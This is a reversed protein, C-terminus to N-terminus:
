SSAKIDGCSVYTGLDDASKHVNIAYKGALLTDLSVSVTSTSSGDVTNSLAYEPAAKINGCTGIHIHTPQATSPAGKLSIVIKVGDSQQTLTATGNEGSNNLEKMPITVTTVAAGAPPLNAFALAALAAVGLLNRVITM